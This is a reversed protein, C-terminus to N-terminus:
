DLCSCFPLSVKLEDEDLLIDEDKDSMEVELYDVCFGLPDIGAESALKNIPDEKIDGEKDYVEYAQMLQTRQGNMLKIEVEQLLCYEGSFLFGNKPARPLRRGGKRSAGLLPEPTGM